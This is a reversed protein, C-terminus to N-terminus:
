HRVTIQEDDLVPNEPTPQTNGALSRHSNGYRLMSLFIPAPEPDRPAARTALALTHMAHRIFRWRTRWDLQRDLLNIPMPLYLNIEIVKFQGQVLADISDARVSMRSIGFRGVEGVWAALQQQSADDFQATIDRYCTNGNHKSNVPLHESTNVAETVTVVDRHEDDRDVDIVFIEFERAGNAAEQMLYRRSDRGVRKRLADLEDANDVREVGHSNQGWEPKLFVPWEEPQIAGNDVAQWLHWRDPILRDIARKSFVGERKSFYAANIQWYRWPGVGTRLCYLIYTIVLLITIHM